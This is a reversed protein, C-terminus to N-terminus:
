LLLTRAAKRRTRRQIFFALKSVFFATGAVMIIAAGSTLDYNFSIYLGCVTFFIGLLASFVMMTGLSHVYNEAIYPPITLLAIVLILGVLRITIVVSLATMILLAFYFLTVPIGIVFAFEEDYSIALFEKYFFSVVLIIAVNFLMMIWIDAKAVTLISGFLYSMLDVNYGPTIDVFIIGLAMGTAWLVGIVTDSRHKSTLNVAGMVVAIVVAFSAAGLAPSTGFYLALGIGGYASHAIGGALLSIRNVVVLTGIIGCLISVMIGAILANQMFDFQLADWM